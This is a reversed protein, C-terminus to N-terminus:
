VDTCCAERELLTAYNERLFYNMKLQQIDGYMRLEGKKRSVVGETYVCPASWREIFFLNELM